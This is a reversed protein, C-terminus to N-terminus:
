FSGKGTKRKSAPLESDTAQRLASAFHHKFFDSPLTRITMRMLTLLRCLVMWISFYMGIGFEVLYLKQSWGTTSDDSVASIKFSM